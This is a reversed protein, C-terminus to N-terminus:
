FVLLFHSSFSPFTVIICFCKIVILRGSACLTNVSSFGSMIIPKVDKLFSLGGCTFRTESVFLGDHKHLVQQLTARLNSAKFFNVWFTWFCDGEYLLLFSNDSAVKHVCLPVGFFLHKSLDHLSHPGCFTMMCYVFPRSSTSFSVIDQYQQSYMAMKFFPLSFRRALSVESFVKRSM